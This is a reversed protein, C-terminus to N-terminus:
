DAYKQQTSGSVRLNIVGIIGAADDRPGALVFGHGLLDGARIAGAPVFVVADGAYVPLVTVEDGEIAQPRRVDVGIRQRRHRGSRGTGIRTQPRHDPSEVSQTRCARVWRPLAM